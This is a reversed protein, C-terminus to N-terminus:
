GNTRVKAKKLGKQVSQRYRRVRFRRCKIDLGYSKVTIQGKCVRGIKQCKQMIRDANSM